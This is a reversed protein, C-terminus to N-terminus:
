PPPQKQSSSDADSEPQEEGPLATAPAGKRPKRFRKPHTTATESQSSPTPSVLPPLKAFSSHKQLQAPLAPPPHRRRYEKIGLGLLIMLMVFAVVRKEEPTLVFLQWHVRPEKKM